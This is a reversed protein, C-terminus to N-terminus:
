QNVTMVQQKQHESPLNKKTNMPFYFFYLLYISSSILRSITERYNPIMNKLNAIFSFFVVNVKNTSILLLYIHPLFQFVDRM